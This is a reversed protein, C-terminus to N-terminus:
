RGRVRLGFDLPSQRKPSTPNGFVVVMVEFVVAVAVVGVVSSLTFYTAPWRHEVTGTDVAIYPRIKLQILSQPNM